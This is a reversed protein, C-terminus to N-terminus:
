TLTNVLGSGMTALSWILIGAALILTRSMRRALIGFVPLAVMYVLLFISTLLGIDADNAGLAEKLPVVIGAILNRDLYNLLNIATLTTLAIRASRISADAHSKSQTM